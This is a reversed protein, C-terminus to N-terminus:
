RKKLILFFLLRKSLFFLSFLFLSIFQSKILVKIKKLGIAVCSFFINLSLVPLFLDLDNQVPVEGNMTALSLLYVLDGIIAPLKSYVM